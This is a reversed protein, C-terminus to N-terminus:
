VGYLLYVIIAGVYATLGAGLLSIQIRYWKTKANRHRIMNALDAEDDGTLFQSLWRIRLNSLLLLVSGLVLTLGLGLGWRALLSSEAIKPGSFGTITLTITALTLLLQSRAQITNFQWTVREMARGLADKSDPYCALLRRAETLPDTMREPPNDASPLM